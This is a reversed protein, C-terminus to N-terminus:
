SGRYSEQAERTPDVMDSRSLASPSIYFNKEVVSKKSPSAYTKMKGLESSSVKEISEDGPNTTNGVLLENRTMSEDSADILNISSM